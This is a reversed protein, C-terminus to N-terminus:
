ANNANKNLRQLGRRVPIYKFNLSFGKQQLRMSRSLRARTHTHTHTHSRALAHIHVCLSPLVRRDSVIERCDMEFGKDFSERVIVLKM